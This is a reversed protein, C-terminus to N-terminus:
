PGDFREFLGVQFYFKGEVEWVQDGGLSSAVSEIDDDEVGGEEHDSEVVAGYVL